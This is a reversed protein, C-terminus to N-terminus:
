NNMCIGLVPLIDVKYITIDKHKTAHGLQFESYTKNQTQLQNCQM